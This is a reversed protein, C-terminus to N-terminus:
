LKPFPDDETLAWYEVDVFTDGIALSSVATGEYRFGLRTALAKSRKNEPRISAVIRHSKQFLQPILSQLAEFMLGRGEGETSAYWGIYLARSRESANTLVITGATPPVIFDKMKLVIDIEDGPVTPVTFPKSYLHETDIFM